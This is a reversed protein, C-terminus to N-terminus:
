KKEAVLYVLPIKDQIVNFKILSYGAEQISEIFTPVSWRTRAAFGALGMIRSIIYSKLDAGHCYTPVIIRGNEKLVRKMESLAAEPKFLLHLLNSAIITDFSKDPFDLNCADGVMFDINQIAERICKERGINIMEPSIDIAVIKKVQHRLRICIIGTGTAIELLNQSEKTDNILNYLIQSYTNLVNKNIFDDYKRAYSDWFKKELEIRNEM